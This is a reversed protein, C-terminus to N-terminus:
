LCCPPPLPPFPNTRSDLHLGLYLIAVTRQGVRELTLAPGGVGRM